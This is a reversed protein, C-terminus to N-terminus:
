MLEWEIGVSDMYTELKEKADKTLEIRYEYLDADGADVNPTLSEIVAQEAEARAKEIAAAKEEEIRRLAAEKEEEAKRIAAEQEEKIRRQEELREREERRIREEEEKKRREQERAIIEQKQKEYNTIYTMAEPLSLNEKYIELAKEEAESQM